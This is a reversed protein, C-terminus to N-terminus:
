QMCYFPYLVFVARVSTASPATADVTVGTVLRNLQNEDMKDEVKVTVDTGNTGNAHPRTMERRQEETPPMISTPATHAKSKMSAMSKGGTRHPGGRSKASKKGKGQGKGNRVPSKTPKHKKASQARRSALPKDEDGSSLSSDSSLSSYSVRRRKPPREDDGDLTDSLFSSERSRTRKDEDESPVTHSSMLRHQISAFFSARVSRALSM